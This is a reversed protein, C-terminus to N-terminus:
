ASWICKSATRRPMTPRTIPLATWTSIPAWNAIPARWCTRTSCRRHRGAADNYAAHLRAPDKVLDVGILLGGGNLSARMRRLLAMAADPKFNGITSGPFFRRPAIRRCAPFTWRRTFDAVVPRLALAPYDAALARVVDHLYDGSIDLPTYARPKRADLLIRVKRLSGAGFEVIEVGTGM